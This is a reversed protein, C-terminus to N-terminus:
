CIISLIVTKYLMDMHPILSLFIEDVVAEFLKYTINITLPFWLFFM